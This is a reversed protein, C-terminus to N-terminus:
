PARLSSDHGDLDFRLAAHPGIMMVALQFNGVPIVQSCDREVAQHSGGSNAKGDLM